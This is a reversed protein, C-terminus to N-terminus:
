CFFEDVRNAEFLRPPFDFLPFKKRQFAFSEEHLYVGLAHTLSRNGILSIAGFGDNAM